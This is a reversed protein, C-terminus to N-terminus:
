ALVVEAAPVVRSAAGPWRAISAIRNLDDVLGDATVPEGRYEDDETTHADEVLTVPYGRVLAGHLTSRICYDTQAGCLVLETIGQATLRQVLDTDAFSDGWQKDVIPEDAAPVLEPVIRWGDSGEVLGDDHHRVWVVPTGASRARDVLSVIRAVVDEAHACVDMVDNQVDVVLLGQAM